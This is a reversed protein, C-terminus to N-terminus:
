AADKIPLGSRARMNLIRKLKILGTALSMAILLVLLLALDPASELIGRWSIGSWRPLFFFVALPAAWDFPLTSVLSPRRPSRCAKWLSRGQLALLLLGVAAIGLYIGRLPRFPTPIPRDSLIAVIAAAIERTHDVFITSMNTLVVVARNQEPLLVIAGRYSPLAGGHWLSPVGATTGARLGMAYKFAGAEAVGRHMEEAAAESFLRVGAASGGGLHVAVFRGLDSASTIVSATPLRDAEFRYFSPGAMGFWINRGDALGGREAEGEQTFSRHLGLPTFIARQLYDSFSQGSVQEVLAGLVQYNPSAYVHAGGPREVLDTTWLAAVHDVLTPKAGTARPASTPIGSNQNLLHRVTIQRSADEEALHFDPLYRQVPQDLDIKGADVLQMVATATFLKSLSGIVFPTDPGILNGGTAGRSFTHVVQDGQMIVVAIGPILHRRMKEATVRDIADYPNTQASAITGGITLVLLVVLSGIWRAARGHAHLACFKM